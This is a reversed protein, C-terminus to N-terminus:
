AKMTNPKKQQCSHGGAYNRTAADFHVLKHGNSLFKFMFHHATTRKRNLAILTFTSLFSGKWLTEPVIYIYINIHTHTHRHTHICPMWHRNTCDKMLNAWVNWVPNAAGKEFFLIKSSAYIKGDYTDSKMKKICCKLSMHIYVYVFMFMAAYRM